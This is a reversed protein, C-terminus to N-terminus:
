GILRWAFQAPVEIASGALTVEKTATGSGTVVLSSGSKLVLTGTNWTQERTVGSIVQRTPSADDKFVTFTNAAPDYGNGSVTVYMVAWLMGAAPGLNGKTLANFESIEWTNAAAVITTASFDVFKVGRMAEAMWGFAAALEDRVEDRTLLDLHVGAKLQVKM